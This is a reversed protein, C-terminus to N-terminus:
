KVLFFMLILTSLQIELEMNKGIWWQYRMGLERQIVGLVFSSLQFVLIFSLKETCYSGRRKGGGRQDEGVISLWGINRFHSVTSYNM